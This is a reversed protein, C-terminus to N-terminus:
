KKLDHIGFKLYKLLQLVQEFRYESETINGIMDNVLKFDSGDLIQADLISGIARLVQPSAISAIDRGLLRAGAYEYDFNDVNMLDSHDKYLREENNPDLYNRILHLLDLADKSRGPRNDNWAILKMIALGPRSSVRITVDPTTSIRIEIASQYAEEFGLTSMKTHDPAPWQISHENGDIPGFPIIDVPIHTSIHFFRHKPAKDHRFKGGSIMASSLTNFKDWGNIHIALDIDQTLRVSSIGLMSDILDRAVAGVVIFSIGLNKTVEDLDLIVKLRTEDIKWPLSQMM